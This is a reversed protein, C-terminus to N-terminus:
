FYVVSWSRELWLTTFDKESEAGAKIEGRTCKDKFIRDRARFNSRPRPFDHEQEIEAAAANCKSKRKIRMGKHRQM